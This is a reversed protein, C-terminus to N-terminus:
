TNYFDKGYLDVMVPYNSQLYAVMFLSLTRAYANPQGWCLNIIGSM